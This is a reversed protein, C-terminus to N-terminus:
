PRRAAPRAPRQFVYRPHGSALRASRLSRSMDLRYALFRAGRLAASPGGCYNKLPRSPLPTFPGPLAREAKGRCSAADFRGGQVPGCCPFGGCAPPRAPADKKEGRKKSSCSFPSARRRKPRNSTCRKLRAFGGVLTDQPMKSCGNFPLKRGGQRRSGRVPARAPPRTVKRAQALFTVLPGRLAPGAPLGQGSRSRGPCGARSFM